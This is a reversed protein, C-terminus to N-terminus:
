DLTYSLLIIIKNQVKQLMLQSIPLISCKSVKYHQKCLHYKGEFGAQVDWHGLYMKIIIILGGGKM